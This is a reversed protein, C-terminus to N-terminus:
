RSLRFTPFDPPRSGPAASFRSTTYIFDGLASADDNGANAAAHFIIRGDSRAPATWDVTWRGEDPSTLDAGSKTHQIYQITSGPASVVQTRGDPARFTGAQKGADPGDAHRASLEFGACKAGRRRVVITIGYRRGPEVTEPVGDIRLSGDPDNLKNDFHCKACTEEGFGGTMAPLPGERYALVLPPAALAAALALPLLATV